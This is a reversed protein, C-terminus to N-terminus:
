WKSTGPCKLREISKRCGKELVTLVGGREGPVFENSYSSLQPIGDEPIDHWTGRTLVSTESSSPVKIM